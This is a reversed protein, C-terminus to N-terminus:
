ICRSLAPKWCSAIAITAKGPLHTELSTSQLSWGSRIARAATRAEPFLKACCVGGAGAGPAWLEWVPLGGAKAYRGAEVHHSLKKGVEIARRGLPVPFRSGAPRESALPLLIQRGKACGRSHDLLGSERFTYGPFLRQVGSFVKYALVRETITRWVPKTLGSGIRITAIHIAEPAHACVV